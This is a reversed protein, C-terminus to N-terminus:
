VSKKSQRHGGVKSKYIAEVMNNHLNSFFVLGVNLCSRINKWMEKRANNGAVEGLIQLAMLISYDLGEFILLNLQDLALILLNEVRVATFSIELAGNLADVVM